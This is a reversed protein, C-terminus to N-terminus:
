AGGPANRADQSSMERLFESAKIENMKDLIKGRKRPEILQLLRAGQEAPWEELVMAAQDEKMSGLSKAVEQLKAMKDADMTDVTKTLQAILEELTGRLEEMQTQTEDMREQQQELDRERAAIAEERERLAKATVSLGDPKVDIEGPAVAQNRGLLKDIGEKNLAGAYALMGGVTLAFSFLALVLYLILKM